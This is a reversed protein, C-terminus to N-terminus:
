GWTNNRTWTCQYWLKKRSASKWSKQMTTWSPRSARMTFSTRWSKTVPETFVSRRRRRRMRTSDSSHRIFTIYQAIYHSLSNGLVGSAGARAQQQLDPSGYGCCSARELLAWIVQGGAVCQCVDGHGLLTAQVSYWSDWQHPARKQSSVSLIPIPRGPGPRPGPGM